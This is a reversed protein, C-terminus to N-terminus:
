LSVPGLRDGPQLQDLVDLGAVVQGFATYRGELHPQAGHTIFFQSGGTDRGALAMGVTGRTYPLRNDECRQWFGPGGYGDGRPDGGQVVFAPVVRHFALGDYFDDGALALFRAVTTPAVDPRLELVIDGRSTHLTVRPRTGPDVLADPDIPNPVEEHESPIPLDWRRMLARAPDRVGRSAHRALAELRGGLDRADTADLADIWSVWTELEDEPTHDAMASLAQRVEVMPLPPPVVEALVPRRAIAALATAAAARVGADNVHFAELVLATSEATPIPPAAALVAERVAPHEQQFLRRLFVVRQEHAGELRALVNAARVVREWAEVAEGGCDDVRSPWGRAHDVLEAAACHVLGRDRPHGGELGASARHLEVALDHVAGARAVSGAADFASLLRHTAPGASLAGDAVAADYTARLARAMVAPGDSAAPAKRGMARLAHVAVRWDEDRAGPAVVDLTLGPEAGAARYAFARVEASPDALALALAAAVGEDQPGPPIRGLAYACSVRVPEPQDSLLSAIAARLGAPTPEGALGWEAAAHCAASREPETLARLGARVAPLARPDHSRGLDRLLLARIEPDREAALAGALAPVVEDPHEHALAGLALSAAARVEAHTDRLLRTAPAIGESSRVRALGVLARQRTDASPDDLSALLLATQRADSEAVLAERPPSDPQQPAPQPEPDPPTAPEDCGLLLSIAICAPALRRISHGCM